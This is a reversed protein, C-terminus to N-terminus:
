LGATVTITGKALQKAHQSPTFGGPTRNPRGESCERQWARDGHTRTGPQHLSHESLCEDQPWGNFSELDANQNPKGPEIPRLSVQRELAWTLM